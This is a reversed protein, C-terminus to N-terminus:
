RPKKYQLAHLRIRQSVVSQGSRPISGYHDFFRKSLLILLHISKLRKGFLM